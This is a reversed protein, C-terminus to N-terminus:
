QCIAKPALAVGRSKIPRLRSYIEMSEIIAQHLKPRVELREGKNQPPKPRVEVLLIIAQHLRPSLEM